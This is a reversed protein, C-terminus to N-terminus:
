YWLGTIRWGPPRPWDPALQRMGVRAHVPSARHVRSPGRHGALENLRAVRDETSPHTRLLSPDPVRRGPAFVREWWGGQLRELKLLASGLGVPDGTLGVATLDADFERTRSLALQTLASVSPAFILLLVVLWPVHAEGMFLLPLNLLLLLQGMLSLASTMRSFLDALGMVFLDNARVHSIEHALVATLERPSLSRLLGDTLGISANGPSGTAFANLMASPVYYLAPTRQLGARESLVRNAEALQPAQAPHIPRAQYFRMIMRPSVSPNFLVSLGGLVVLLLVGLPGWVLYGLLALFAGMGGLLLLSQLQNGAAHRQWVESDIRVSM